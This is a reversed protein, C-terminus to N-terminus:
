EPEAVVEIEFVIPCFKPISPASGSYGYGLESYFACIVKEFPRLNSLCFAFGDVVTSGEETETTSITATTYDSDSAPHVVMPAYERSADYIKYVKATDEITTDFVHGNLLRGTYNIYYTTDSSFKEDSTPQKLTRCYYGYKTSDVGAMNTAVYKSLKNIQWQIIDDTKDTINVTYIVNTGSAKKQYEEATKYDLNVNLWGPILATRTGGVRMGDFMEIVGATTYMRNLFFVDSGYYNAESFTGVQQSVKEYSTSSINGDLDTVTYDAIVYLDNDTLPAGNGPTDELIYVGLGSANANPHNVKIWAEVFAKAMDSSDVSSEKACGATFALTMAIVGCAVFTKLKDINMIKM